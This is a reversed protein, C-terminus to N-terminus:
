DPRRLWQVVGQIGVTSVGAERLSVSIHEALGIASSKLTGALWDRKIELVAARHDDDLKDFWTKHRPPTAKVREVIAAKLDSAKKPM